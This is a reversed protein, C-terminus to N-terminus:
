PAGGGCIPDTDGDDVLVVGASDHGAGNGPRDDSPLKHCAGCSGERGIISNMSRQGARVKLPFTLDSWKDKEIYFNGAANTCAFRSPGASDFIEVKVNPAAALAGMATEKYVTGAIAFAPAAEGYTSHCSLCPQGPRHLASPSGSEAPLGDIVEQPIPDNGNCGVAGLSSLAVAFSLAAFFRGSSVPVM